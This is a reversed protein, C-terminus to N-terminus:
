PERFRVFEKCVVGSVLRGSFCEELIDFTQDRPNREGNKAVTGSPGFMSPGCFFASWRFAASGPTFELWSAARDLSGNLM